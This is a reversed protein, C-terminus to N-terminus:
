QKIVTQKYLNNGDKDQIILWYNGPILGAVSITETQGLWPLNETRVTQGNTNILKISTYSGKVVSPRSINIENTAPNPFVHIPESVSRISSVVAPHHPPRTTYIEYYYHTIYDATTDYWGSTGTTDINFIYEWSTVPENYSDYTFAFKTKDIFTGDSYNTEWQYLTDPLGSTIHKTSYLYSAPTGGSLNFSREYTIYDIGTTYGFTDSAQPIWSSGTYQCVSDWTIKNDTNYRMFYQETYEWIGMNYDYYDAHIMNDSDDFTYIWKEFPQWVGGIYLSTSDKIVNSMTDYTFQRLQSSDWVGFNWSLALSTLMNDNIDFTNIYRNQDYSFTTDLLHLDAWDTVNYDSDYVAYQIDSLAFTDILYVSSFGYAWNWSSDFLIAPQNNHNNFGIDSSFGMILDGNFYFTPDFFMQNFDFISSRSAGYMYRNSDILGLRGGTLTDTPYYDYISMGTLREALTSTTRAALKATVPKNSFHRNSLMAVNKQWRATNNNNKIVAHLYKIHNQQAFAGCNIVILVAAMVVKIINIM